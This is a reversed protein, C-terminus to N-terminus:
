TPRRTGEGGPHHIRTHNPGGAVQNFVTQHRNMRAARLPSRAGGQTTVDKDNVNDPNSLSLSLSLSRSILAGNKTPPEPPAALGKAAPIISAFTIRVEPPHNFVTHHRNMIAARLPSRAGGQTTVDKDNVNDNVKDPNSLSLSLSPSLSRPISAFACRPTPLSM